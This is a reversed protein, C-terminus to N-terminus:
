LSLLNFKKLASLGKLKSEASEKLASINNQKDEESCTVNQLLEKLAVDEFLKETLGSIITTCFNVDEYSSQDYDVINKLSTLITRLVKKLENLKKEDIPAKQQASDVTKLLKNANFQACLMSACYINSTNLILEDFNFM